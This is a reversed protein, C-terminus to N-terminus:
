LAIWYNEFNSNIFGAVKIYSGGAEKSQLKSKSPLLSNASDLIKQTSRYNRWLEILKAKPYLKKFYLFNEASAGQFRFIAQKEDGVIFINPNKHFDCLLELIKNQASNTDQHEDVLIYQHEEQLMLKLDSAGTGRLKLSTPSSAGELVKLVEMIMDSWDYFRKKALTEQYTKYISALELNKEIKRLEGVAEGKMKGKYAGKSHYINDRNRFDKEAKKVIGEFKEATLGERKLEEIKKVIDGVYLFPDGWPRLLSLSSNKIIDEIIGAAEVETIHSSGIIGPFAEPYSALVNNCFSHFTEIRVRYAGAGIIGFLRRRMNISAADTFTLALINEPATDTKLLINAIRLTLVQTKGTGPGAVVMVPGDITDVANKQEPNLRGYEKKFEKTVM